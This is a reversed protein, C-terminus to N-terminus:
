CTVVPALATQLKSVLDLLNGSYQVAVKTGRVWVDTEGLLPAPPPPPSSPPSLPVTLISRTRCFTNEFTHDHCVVIVYLITKLYTHDHCFDIVYLILVM